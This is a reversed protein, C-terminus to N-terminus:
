ADDESAPIPPVSGDAKIWVYDGPQDGTIRYQQGDGATTAVTGKVSAVEREPLRLVAAADATTYKKPPM